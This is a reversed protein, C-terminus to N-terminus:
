PALTGLAKQLDVQSLRVDIQADILQSRAQLWATQAEMVVTPTIVGEQFGVNAVRLNEEAREIATLAMALRKNAEEVKLTSQNVQLEILDRAEDLELNAIATAGKSARVKYAMDGWNWIPIRVLVGVNWFGGFKKEFGNLVNPNSIAYGGTLAVQPLNAARLLNTAQHSLDVASGLMKLEPRLAGGAGESPPVVAKIDTTGLSEANEDALVVPEDLPLGIRENLLMRSLTLGDNVKQLTMEAENVKVSVSLGESRTAVGEAIMKQVDSDLKKVVDLFSQALEQKHKLSVVQWYAQDISYLVTQRRVDASYRMMDENIDAMRNLAMIAGGMFLPQTVLVSGAFINRTDTRFADVIKQGETNLLGATNTLTQGMQQQMQGAMQQFVELPVGMQGLVQGLQGLQQQVGGALGQMGTAATTGINSLATKQQDNLLSIEESTYQYTGIASVHPLYKTRASRRLNKAMDQKVEAVGMQKSNRLAMARCSDLSLITQAGAPSFSLHYIVFSLAIVWRNKIESRM